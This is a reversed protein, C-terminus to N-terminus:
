AKRMAEAGARGLFFTARLNVDIQLQWDELSVDSLPQRKLAAAALVLAYLNGLTDETQEILEEGTGVNRVDVTAPIVTGERDSEVESALTDLGREDIDVALVRAGHAAFLKASARGIGSAAGTVLVGRQELGKGLFERISM